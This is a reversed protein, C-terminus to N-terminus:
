SKVPPGRFNLLGYYGKFVSTIFLIPFSPLPDPHEPIKLKFIVGTSHNTYKLFINDPIHQGALRVCQEDTIRYDQKGSSLNLHKGSLGVIMFVWIFALYILYPAATNFGGFFFM